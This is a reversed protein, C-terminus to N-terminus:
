RSRAAIAAIVAEAVQESRTCLGGGSNSTMDISLVQSEAVAAYIACATSSDTGERVAPYGALSFPVVDAIDGASAYMLEVWSKVNISLRMVDAGDISRWTCSTAKDNSEDLASGPDLGAEVLQEVTLATCAVVGTADLPLDLNGPRELRTPSASAESPRPIAASNTCAVVLAM